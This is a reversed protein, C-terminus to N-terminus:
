PSPNRVSIMQWFIERVVDSEDHRERHYRLLVGIGAEIMAPTVEIESDGANAIGESM